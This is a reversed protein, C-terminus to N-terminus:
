AGEEIRIAAKTLLGLLGGTPEIEIEQLERKTAPRWGSGTFRVGDSAPMQQSRDSSAQAEEEILSWAVDASDRHELDEQWEQGNNERTATRGLHRYVRGHEDVRLPCPLGSIQRNWAAIFQKVRVVHWAPHRAAVVDDYRLVDGLAPNRGFAMHFLRTAMSLGEFSSDTGTADSEQRMAKGRAYATTRELEPYSPEMRTNLLAVGGFLCLADLDDQPPALKALMSRAAARSLMSGLPFDGPSLTAPSDSRNEQKKLSKDRM